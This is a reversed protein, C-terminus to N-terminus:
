GSPHPSLQVDSSTLSPHTLYNKTLTLRYDLHGASSTVGVQVGRVRTVIVVKVTKMRTPKTQKHIEQVKMPSGEVM